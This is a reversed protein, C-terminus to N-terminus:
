KLRGTVVLPLVDPGEFAQTYSRVVVALATKYRWAAELSYGSACQRSNPLRADSQLTRTNLKLTFGQTPSDSFRCASRLTFTKLSVVGAPTARTVTGLPPYDLMPLPEVTFLRQGAIPHSLGYRALVAAQSRRWGEALVDLPRTENEGWDMERRYVIVNRSVDTIQLAAYPFGSADRTMSTFLLHYRADPSFGQQVINPHDAALMSGSCFSGVLVSLLLFRRM